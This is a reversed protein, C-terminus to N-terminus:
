LFWLDGNWLERQCISVLIHSAQSFPSCQSATLRLSASRPGAGGLSEEWFPLEQSVRVLFLLCMPHEWWWSGQHPLVESPALAASVNPQVHGGLWCETNKPKLLVAQIFRADWWSQLEGDWAWCTNSAGPSLWWNKSRELCPPPNFLQLTVWKKQHASKPLTFM